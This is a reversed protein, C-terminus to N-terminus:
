VHSVRKSSKLNRNSAERREARYNDDLREKEAMDWAGEPLPKEPAAVIWQALRFAAAKTKIEKGSALGWYPSNAEALLRAVILLAVRKTVGPGLKFGSPVHTVSYDPFSSRHEALHWSLERHVAWVGSYVDARIEVRVKENSGQRVKITRRTGKGLGAVREAQLANWAVLRAAEEKRANKAVLAEAEICEVEAKVDTIADALVPELVEYEYGAPLSLLMQAVRVFFLRSGPLPWNGPTDKGDLPDGPHVSGLYGRGKGTFPKTLNVDAFAALTTRTPATIRAIIRPERM